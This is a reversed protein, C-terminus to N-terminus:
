KIQGGFLRIFYLRHVSKQTSHFVAFLIFLVLKVCIIHYLFTSSSVQVHFVEHGAM